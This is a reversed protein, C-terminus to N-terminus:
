NDKIDEDWVFDYNYASGTEMACYVRMVERYLKIHGADTTPWTSPPMLSTVDKLCSQDALTNKGHQLKIDIFDNIEADTLQHPVPVNCRNKLESYIRQMEIKPQLMLKHHSTVVRCLDQSQQIARKNYIYWLRLGKNVEFREFERKHMSLAVDLPHRYTFLIAPIFKLLPLWTRFTICLRPDKLMWPYNEKNNLFTLGRSGEKFFQSTLGQTLIEQLGKLADYKYTNHSYHVQQRQMIYDNQLVVDIREFFGKANDEAAQILPGGTKLGLKNVLGGLVSTGSRHMGLIIVGPRSLSTEVSLSTPQLTPSITRLLTKKLRQLEEERQVLQQQLHDAQNKLQLVVSPQISSTSSSFIVSYVIFVYGFSIFICLVTLLIYVRFPSNSNSTTVISTPLGSSGRM